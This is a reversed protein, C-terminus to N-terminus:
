RVIGPRTKWTASISQVDTERISLRVPMEQTGLEVTRGNDYSVRLIMEQDLSAEGMRPRRKITANISYTLVRGNATDDSSTEMSARAPIIEMDFWDYADLGKYQISNILHKM